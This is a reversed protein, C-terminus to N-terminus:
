TYYLCLVTVKLYGKSGTRNTPIIVMSKDNQKNKNQKSVCTEEKGNGIISILQDKNKQHISSNQIWSRQLDLLSKEDIIEIGLVWSPESKLKGM